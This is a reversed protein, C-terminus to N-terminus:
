DASFVPIRTLMSYGSAKVTGSVDIRLCVSPDLPTDAVSLGGLFAADYCGALAAPDTLSAPKSTVVGNLNVVTGRCGASVLSREAAITNAAFLALAVAPMIRMM